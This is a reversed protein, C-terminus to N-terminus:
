ASAGRRVLDHNRETDFIRGFDGRNLGIDMLERDSMMELEAIAAHQKRWASVAAARAALWAGLGRPAAAPRPMYRLSPEELSADVYSLNPLEFAFQSKTLPAAM